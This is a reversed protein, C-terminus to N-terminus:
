LGVAAALAGVQGPDHSAPFCMVEDAGAEELATLYRKVTDADKAASDIV